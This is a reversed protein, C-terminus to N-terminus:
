YNLINKQLSNSGISKSYDSNFSQSNNNHNTYSTNVYNLPKKKLSTNKSKIIENDGRIKNLYKMLEIAYNENMKKYFEM